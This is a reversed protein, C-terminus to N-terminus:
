SSCKIKGSGFTVPLTTMLNPELNWGLVDTSNSVPVRCYPTPKSEWQAVRYNVKFNLVLFDFFSLM